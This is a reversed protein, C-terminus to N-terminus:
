NAEQTTRAKVLKWGRLAAVAEFRQRSMTVHGPDDNGAAKREAEIKPHRATVRDSTAV